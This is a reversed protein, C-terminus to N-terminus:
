LGHFFPVLFPYDRTLEDATNAMLQVRNLAGTAIIRKFFLEYLARPSKEFPLVNGVAMATKMTRPMKRAILRILDWPNEKQERVFKKMGVAGVLVEIAHFGAADMTEAVSDVMGSRIGLAWLSQAGDRFSTDVFRVDMAPQMRSDSLEAFPKTGAHAHNGAKLDLSQVVQQFGSTQSSAM